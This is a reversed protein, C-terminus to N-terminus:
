TVLALTVCGVISLDLCVLDKKTRVEIALVVYFQHLSALLLRISGLM